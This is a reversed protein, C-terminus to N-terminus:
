YSITAAVHALSGLTQASPLRILQWGYDAQLSLRNGLAYRMGVGVSSLQTSSPENPQTMNDGVSGFDWFTLFQTQDGVDEDFLSKSMDFSPSRLEQSVLVGQSGNAAREDYGRVSTEGGAGLEESPLLNGSSVQAMLRTVASMSWFLPTARTM